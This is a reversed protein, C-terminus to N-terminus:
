EADGKEILDEAPRLFTLLTEGYKREDILFFQQTEDPLPERSSHEIVITGGPKLLTRKEQLLPVLVEMWKCLYPPDAFIVDFCYKKRLLWDLSRRIDMYLVIPPDTGKGKRPIETCRSRLTEVAVVPTAGSQWAKMAVRGTGAFLDLFALDKVSGLINFLASLVKGSTPRVDKM